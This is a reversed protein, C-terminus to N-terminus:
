TARWGALAFVMLAVISLLLLAGSPMFHGTKVLRLSFVGALALAVVAAALFGVAPNSRSWAWAALLAASSVAGAILSARSGAARYGIVGGVLMLLAYVLLVVSAYSAM